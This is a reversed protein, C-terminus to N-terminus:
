QPSLEAVFQYTARTGNSAQQQPPHPSWANEQMILTVGELGNMDDRALTIPDSLLDREFLETTVEEHFDLILQWVWQDREQFQTRRNVKPRRTYTSRTENFLSTEPPISTQENIVCQANDYSVRPFTAAKIRALLADYIRKKNTLMVAGMEDIDLGELVLVGLPVIIRVNARLAPVFGDLVLEGLPQPIKGIPTHVLPDIVLEGLPPLIKGIPVPAFPDLVLTGLPSVPKVVATPAFPELVMEGLPSVPRVTPAPNLPDLVVEGLPSVPKVTPTPNLPDLVLEGLPVTVTIDDAELAFSLFKFAKDAQVTTFDLEFGDSTFSEFAAEYEPGTGDDLPMYLATDKDASQTNSNSANDEASVSSCFEENQTFFALGATGAAENTLDSTGWSAASITPLMLVSGPKFGYGTFATVGATTPTSEVQLDYSAGGYNVALYGIRPGTAGVNGVSQIDFGDANYQVLATGALVLFPGSASGRFPTALTGALRLSPQTTAKNNSEEFNVSKTIGGRVSQSLCSMWGRNYVEDFDGDFSGSLCVLHDPQFTTTVTVDAGGVVNPAADGVVAEIDDGAWLIVDVVYAASPLTTWDIRIGDTIWSDFTAVADNTVGGPDPLTVVANDFRIHDTDSNAQNHESQQGWGRHNTGDTLCVSWRREDAATGTLSTASSVIIIAAVPTGIGSVTFDQTTGSTIAAARTGRITASVM